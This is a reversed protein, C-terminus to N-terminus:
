PSWRSRCEKGVRREESRAILEAEPYLSQGTVRLSTVPFRVGVAPPIAPVNGQEIRIEPVARQPNPQPPIQQIQSGSSPPNQAFGTQSLALLAVAFVGAKLMGQVWAGQWPPSACTSGAITTFDDPQCGRQNYASQARAYM